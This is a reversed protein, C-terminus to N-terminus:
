ETIKVGEILESLEEWAKKAELLHYRFKEVQQVAEKPIIEKIEQTENSM